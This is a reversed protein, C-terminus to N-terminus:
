GDTASRAAARRGKTVPSAARASGGLAREVSGEAAGTGAFAAGAVAFAARADEAGAFPAEAAGADETESFLIAADEAGAAM